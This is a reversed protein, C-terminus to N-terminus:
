VKGMDPPSLTYNRHNPNPSKQPTKTKKEKIPPSFSFVFGSGLENPPVTLLHGLPEVMHLESVSELAVMIYQPHLLKFAQVPTRHQCDKRAV